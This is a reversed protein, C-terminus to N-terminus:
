SFMILRLGPWNEAIVSEQFLIWRPKMNFYYIIRRELRIPGSRKEEFAKRMAGMREQLAAFSGADLENVGEDSASDPIKQRAYALADLAIQENPHTAKTELRGSM